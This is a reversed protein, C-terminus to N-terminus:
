QPDILLSYKRVLRGKSWNLELIFSLVPERIVDRSTIKIYHGNEDSMVEHRYVVHRLNGAGEEGAKIDIKLRDLEDKTASLISIRADLPQNLFSKVEIEAIALASVAQPLALYLMVLLYKVIHRRM